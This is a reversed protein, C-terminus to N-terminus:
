VKDIPLDDPQKTLTQLWAVVEHPNYLNLSRSGYKLTKPYVPLKNARIARFIMQQCYARTTQKQAMIMDIVTKTQILEPM